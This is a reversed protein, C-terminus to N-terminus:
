RNSVSPTLVTGKGEERKKEEKRERGEGARESEAMNKREREKESGRGWGEVESSFHSLTLSVELFGDEGPMHLFVISLLSYPLVVFFFPVLSPSFASM